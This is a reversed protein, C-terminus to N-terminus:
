ISQTAKPRFVSKRESLTQPRKTLAANESIVFISKGVFIEARMKKAWAEYKPGYPIQRQSFSFLGEYFYKEESGNAPSDCLEIKVVENLGFRTVGNKVASLLQQPDVSDFVRGWTLAFIVGQKRDRMRLCVLDDM